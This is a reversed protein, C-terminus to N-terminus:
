GNPLMNIDGYLLFSTFPLSLPPFTDKLELPPRPDSASPAIALSKLTEAHLLQPKGAVLRAAALQQTGAADLASHFLTRWSNCRIDGRGLSHDM